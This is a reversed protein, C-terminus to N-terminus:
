CLIKDIKDQRRKTLLIRETINKLSISALDEWTVNYRRFYFSLVQSDLYYDPTHMNLQKDIDKIHDLFFQIKM